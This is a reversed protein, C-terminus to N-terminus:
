TCRTCTLRRTPCRTKKAHLVHDHKWERDHLRDDDPLGPPLGNYGFAVRNPRDGVVVAGVKTRPDKSFISAVSAALLLYKGDKEQPPTM